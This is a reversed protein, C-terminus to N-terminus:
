YKQGCRHETCYLPIYRRPWCGEIATVPGLHFCRAVNIREELRCFTLGIRLRGLELLKRAKTEKVKITAAQGGNRLPRLATLQIAKAGCADKIASKVEAETTIADM